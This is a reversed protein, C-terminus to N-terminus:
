ESYDRKLPKAKLVNPVPKGSLAERLEALLHLLDKGSQSRFSRPNEIRLCARELKVFESEFQATRERPTENRSERVRDLLASLQARMSRRDGGVVDFVGEASKFPTKTFNQTWFYRWRGLEGPEFTVEWRYRGRYVANVSHRIGSPSEFTWAVRQRKPSGTRVWTDHLASRFRTGLIVPHNAALLKVEIWDSDIPTVSAVPRWDSVAEPTGKRCEITLSESGAAPLFSIACSRGNKVDIRPLALSRGHELVIDRRLSVTENMNYWEIRLAPRRATNMEDGHDASYFAMLTGREDESADSLKILFLIPASQRTRKQIYANLRSSSFVLRDVRPSYRATALPTADTDANSDNDSAFSAGPLGWSRNGYAVDDWCVEGRVPPSTNDRQTGGCGPNWDKHVAYLFVEQEDSVDCDWCGAPGSEVGLSLSARVVQAGRPLDIGDWRQLMRFLGYEGHVPAYSRRGVRVHTQSVQNWCEIFRGDLFGRIDNDQM